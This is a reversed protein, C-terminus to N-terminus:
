RGPLRRYIRLQSRSERRRGERVSWSLGVILDLIGDENWDVVDLGCINTGDPAAVLKDPATLQTGHPFEVGEFLYIGRGEPERM